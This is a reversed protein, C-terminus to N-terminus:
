RIESLQKALEIILEKNKMKKINFFYKLLIQTKDKDKKNKEKNLINSILDEYFYDIDVKFKKAIIALKAASIKNIGQEYKDLQQHSMDLLKAFKVRTFNNTKRLELIKMGILKNKINEEEMEYLFIKCLLMINYLINLAVKLQHKKIHVRLKLVEFNKYQLFVIFETQAM